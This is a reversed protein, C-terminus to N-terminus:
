KNGSLCKQRKWVRRIEEGRREREKENKDRHARPEPKNSNGHTVISPLPKVNISAIKVDTLADQMVPKLMM